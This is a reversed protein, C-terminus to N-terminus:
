SSALLRLGLRSLALTGLFVSVSALVGRLGVVALLFVLAAMWTWENPSSRFVLAVLVGVDLSALIM